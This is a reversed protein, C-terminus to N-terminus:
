RWPAPWLLANTDAPMDVADPVVTVAGLKAYFAYSSWKWDEPASVLGAQVPNEHIYDLKGWFHRVRRIINDFYRPQWIPGSTRRRRAIEHGTKSKLDRLIRPLTQERPALLLHAHDPMLVYGFLSFSRPSRQAALVELILDREAPSLPAVGRALDTTVFFIRDRDEIRRLRVM